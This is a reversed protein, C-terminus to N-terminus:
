GFADPEDPEGEPSRRVTSPDLFWGKTRPWRPVTFAEVRRAFRPSMFSGMAIVFAIAILVLPIAMVIELALV